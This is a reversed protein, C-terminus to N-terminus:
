TEGRKHPCDDRMCTGWHPREFGCQRRGMGDVVHECRAVEARPANVVRMAERIARYDDAARTV